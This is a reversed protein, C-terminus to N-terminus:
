GGVLVGLFDPSPRARSCTHARSDSHTNWLEGRLLSIKNLRVEKKQWLLTATVACILRKKFFFYELSSFFYSVNIMSNM